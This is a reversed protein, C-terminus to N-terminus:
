GKKVIPMHINIIDQYTKCWMTLAKNPSSVQTVRRWPANFMDSMFADTDLKKMNRYSIEKVTKKQNNIKRTVCVPYHDSVAYIPVCHHVISQPHSVYIHDILTKSHATVRTPESIMQTLHVNDLIHLLKTVNSSEPANLMDINLDGLLMVEADEDYVKELHESFIEFWDSNCNPPRYIFGILVNRSYRHLIELWIIEIDINDLDNRRKYNVGDAIYCAVGGGAKGIRDRREFMYGNIHLLRDPVRNTLFTECLGFIDPNQKDICLKVQEFKHLLRNINLCVCKLGKGHFWSTTLSSTTLSQKVLLYSALMTFILTALALWEFWIDVKVTITLDVPAGCPDIGPGESRGGEILSRGSGGASILGKSAVDDYDINATIKPPKFM